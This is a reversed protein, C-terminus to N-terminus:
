DRTIEADLDALVDFFGPFSVDVHESGTITTEGEAVLGAVAAAMVIRHDGRGDVTAGTLDSEGGHITLTTEEEAVEAGFEDLIEAM